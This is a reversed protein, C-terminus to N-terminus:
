FIRTHAREEYLEMVAKALRAFSHRPNTLPESARPRPAVGVGRAGMPAGDVVVPPAAGGGQGEM